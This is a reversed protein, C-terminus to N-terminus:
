GDPAERLCLPIQGTNEKRNLRFISLKGLSFEGPDKKTYHFIMDRGPSDM